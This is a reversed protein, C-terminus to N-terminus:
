GLNNRAEADDPNVTLAREMLSAADNPRGMQLAVVGSLHLDQPHYPERELVDRYIAEM